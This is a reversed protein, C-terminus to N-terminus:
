EEDEEEIEVEDEEEEEVDDEVVNKDEVVDVVDKDEASVDNDETSVDPIKFSNNTITARLNEFVKIAVVKWNCSINKAAVWIGNCTVIPAIDVGYPAWSLDIETRTELTTVNDKVVEKEVKSIINKIQENGKFVSFLPKEEFIPLTFRITEPLDKYKEDNSKKLTKVYLNEEISEKTRKKVPLTKLIESSNDAVFNIVKQDIDEILKKFKAIHGGIDYKEDTNMSASISYNGKSISRDERSKDKDAYPFSYGYPSNCKPVQINFDKGNYKLQFQIFGDKQTKKKEITIKSLDIEEALYVTM